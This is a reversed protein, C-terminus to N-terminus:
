LFIMTCLFVICILMTTFNHLKSIAIIKTPRLFSKTDEKRERKKIAAGEESEREDVM